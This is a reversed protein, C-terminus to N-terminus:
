TTLGQLTSMIWRLLCAPFLCGIRHLGSCRTGPLSALRQTSGVLVLAVGAIKWNELHATARRWACHRSTSRLQPAHKLTCITTWAFPGESGTPQQCVCSCCILVKKHIKVAVDFAFPFQKQETHCFFFRLHSCSCHTFIKVCSKKAIAAALQLLLLWFKAGLQRWDFQLHQQKWWALNENKVFHFWPFRTMLDALVLLIVGASAKKMFTQERFWQNICNFWGKRCM